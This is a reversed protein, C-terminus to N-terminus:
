TLATLWSYMAAGPSLTSAREAKMGRAEGHCGELWGQGRCDGATWNRARITSPSVALTEGWTEWGLPEPSTLASSSAVSCMGTSTILPWRLGLSVEILGM